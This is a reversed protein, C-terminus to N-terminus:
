LFLFLFFSPGLMRSPHHQFPGAVVGDRGEGVEDRISVAVTNDV